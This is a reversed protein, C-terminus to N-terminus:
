GSRRPYVDQVSHTRPAHPGAHSGSRAIRAGSFFTPNGTARSRQIAPHSCGVSRHTAPQSAKWRLRYSAASRDESGAAPAASTRLYQAWIQKAEEWATVMVAAVIPKDAEDVTLRLEGKKYGALLPQVLTTRLADETSAVKAFAGVATIGRSRLYDGVVSGAGANALVAELTPLTTAMM